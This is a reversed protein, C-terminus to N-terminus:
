FEKPLTVCFRIPTLPIHAMTIYMYGVHNSPLPTNGAGDNQAFDCFRNSHMPARNSIYCRQSISEAVERLIVLTPNLPYSQITMWRIASTQGRRFSM